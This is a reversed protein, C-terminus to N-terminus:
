NSPKGMIVPRAIKVEWSVTHLAMIDGTWQSNKAEYGEAFAPMIIVM